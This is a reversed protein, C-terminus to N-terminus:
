IALAYPLMLMQALVTSTLLGQMQPSNADYVSWIKGRDDERERRCHFSAAQGGGSGEEVLEFKPAPFGGVDPVRADPRLQHVHAPVAGPRPDREGGPDPTQIPARFYPIYLKKDRYTSLDQFDLIM